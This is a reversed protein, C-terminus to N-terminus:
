VPPAPPFADIRALAEAASAVYTFLELDQPAITGAEVLAEWNVVGRWFEEGFLLIPLRAMRGTQVLTLVEFLEDLTGFGGPFVALARARMLFHMKRVAFYHFNFSLSPTGYLNPVQEHPLVINLSVSIGGAEAAGRNGAEMIGPGGGTCIVGERNGTALAREACLRAFGRAEEYYPSLRALGPARATAARAPDPIRASGMMVITSAIGRETLAMEAKLLELQLRVPRLEDRTLFDPDSFALRYSPSLTQPTEPQRDWRELDERADPFRRTPESTETM